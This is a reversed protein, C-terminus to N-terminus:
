NPTTTSDILTITLLEVVIGGIEVLAENPVLVNDYEYYGASFKTGTGSYDWLHMDVGGADYWSASTVESRTPTFEEKFIQLHESPNLVSHDPM